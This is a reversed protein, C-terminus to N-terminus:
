ITKARLDTLKKAITVDLVGNATTVKVGGILEPRVLERLMVTAEPNLESQLLQTLEQRTEDSLAHASEVTAVIIGREALDREIDAVILDGDRGRKESVLLAAIEDMVASNNQALQEAAYEALKRRSVRGAM